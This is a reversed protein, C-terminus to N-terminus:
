MSVLGLPFILSLKVVTYAATRDQDYLGTVSVAPNYDGPTQRIAPM